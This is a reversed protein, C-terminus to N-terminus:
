KRELYVYVETKVVVQIDTFGRDEICRALDAALEEAEQQDTLTGEVSSGVMVRRDEIALFGRVQAEAKSDNVAM